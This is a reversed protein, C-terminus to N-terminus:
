GDRPSSVSDRYKLSVDRPRHHNTHKPCMNVKLFFRHGPAPLHMNAYTFWPEDRSNSVPSSKERTNMQRRPTKFTLVTPSRFSSPIYKTPLRCSESFHSKNLSESILLSTQASHITYVCLPFFIHICYLANIIEIQSPLTHRFPLQLLYCCCPANPNSPPVGQFSATFNPNIGHITTSLDTCM